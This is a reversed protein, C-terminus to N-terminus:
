VMPVIPSIFIDGKKKCKDGHHKTYNGVDMITGCHPCQLKQRVRGRLSAAVKDNHEKTHTRGTLSISQKRRQEESPVKGILTQWYIKASKSNKMSESRL